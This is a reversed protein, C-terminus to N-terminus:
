TSHMVDQGGFGTLQSIRKSPLEPEEEIKDNLDLRSV